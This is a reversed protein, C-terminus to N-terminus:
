QCETVTVNITLTDIKGNPLTDIIPSASAPVRSCVRTVRDVCGNLLTLIAIALLTAIAMGWCGCGDHNRSDWKFTSDDHPMLQESEPEYDSGTFYAM